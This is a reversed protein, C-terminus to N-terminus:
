ETMIFQVTTQYNGQPQADPVVVGFGVQVKKSGTTAGDTYVAEPTMSLPISDGGTGKVFSGTPNEKYAGYWKVNELPIEYGTRPDKMDSLAHVYLDWGIALTQDCGLEVPAATFNNLGIFTSGINVPAGTNVTLTLAAWLPVSMMMCM